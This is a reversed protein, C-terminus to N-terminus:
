LSLSPRPTTTLAPITTQTSLALLILVSISLTLSPNTTTVVSGESLSPLSMTSCNTSVTPQSLTITLRSFSSASSFDTSMLIGCGLLPSLLFLLSALCRVETNATNINVM